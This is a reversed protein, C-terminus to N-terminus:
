GLFTWERRLVSAFAFWNHDGPPAFYPVFQNQQFAQQHFAIASWKIHIERQLDKRYRRLFKRTKPGFDQETAWIFTSNTIEEKAETYLVFRQRLELETLECTATIERGSRTVSPYGDRFVLPTLSEQDLQDFIEINTFDYFIFDGASIDM